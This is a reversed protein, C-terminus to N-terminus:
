STPVPKNGVMKRIIELAKTSTKKIEMWQISNLSYTESIIQEIEETTATAPVSDLDLLGNETLIVVLKEKKM